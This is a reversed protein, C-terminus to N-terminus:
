GVYKILKGEFASKLISRRLHNAKKISSDIVEELKDIVSFRSEIEQVIQKQKKKPPLKITINEAKTKSIEDFTTGSGEQKIKNVIYKLQYYIYEADLINEDKIKFSKFGQNTCIPVKNIVLYGIPARSSMLVSYIPLLKTSCSDYGKKTITRNTKEIYKSKYGSLDKPTIWFINGNWYEKINTSPTSGSIIETVEKMKKEEWDGEFAAKLVSKRYVDLKKKISNLSKVVADLRTFQTEIAQVIINQEEIDPVPIEYQEVVRRPVRKQGATGTMKSKADNRFGDKSISYFIWDSTVKNGPRLVHFETSGFGIGNIMDKAIARKGNEFCPTIKALLVDGEKFYTFGKIVDKLKRVEHTTINGDESVSAMPLFSVDMKRDLDSVEKKSPTIKCVESLKLLDWKRSIGKM